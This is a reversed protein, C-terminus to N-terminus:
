IDHVHEQWKEPGGLNSLDSFFLDFDMYFETTLYDPEVDLEARFLVVDNVEM